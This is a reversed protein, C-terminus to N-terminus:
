QLSQRYAAEQAEWEAKDAATIPRIVQCPNGVAVSNAPIDHTVVSGSGIVVNNGITVGPNVTANGGIWVDDGITIPKAFGLWKNRVGADIPHGAAFLNVRPGLLVRNGITIKGSDLFVANTNCYVDDGVRINKGFDCFFPPEFYVNSGSQGLLQKFRKQVDTGEEAFNIQHLLHDKKAYKKALDKGYVNYLKGALMRQEETPM